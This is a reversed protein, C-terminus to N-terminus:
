KGEEMYVLRTRGIEITDGHMLRLPATIKEKSGDKKIIFSGNLSALDHFVHVGEERRVMAHRGSVNKDALVFDNSADSGVRVQDGVRRSKGEDSGRKVVLMAVRGRQPRQVATTRSAAPAPAPAAARRVPERCYPCFNAGPDLPQNCSACRESM